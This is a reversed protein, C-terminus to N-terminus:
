VLRAIDHTDLAAFSEVQSRTPWFQATKHRVAVLLSTFILAPAIISAMFMGLYFLLRQREWPAAAKLSRKRLFLCVRVLSLLLCCFILALLGVSVIPLEFMGLLAFLCAVAPLVAGKLFAEM